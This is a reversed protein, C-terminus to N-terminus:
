LWLCSVFMLSQLLFWFFFFPIIKWCDIKEEKRHTLCGPNKKAPYGM